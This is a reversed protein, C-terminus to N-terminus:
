FQMAYIAETKRIPLTQDYVRQPRYHQSAISSMPHFTPYTTPHFTLCISPLVATNSRVFLCLSIPDFIIISSSPRSSSLLNLSLTIASKGVLRQKGTAEAASKYMGRSQEKSYELVSQASTGMESLLGCCYLHACIGIKQAVATRRQYRM